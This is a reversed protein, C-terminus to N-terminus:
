SETFWKRIKETEIRCMRLMSAIIWTCFVMAAAVIVSGLVVAGSLQTFDIKM